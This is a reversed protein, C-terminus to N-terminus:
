NVIVTPSQFVIWYDVMCIFQSASAIVDLNLVDKAYPEEAGAQRKIKVNSITVEPVILVRITYVQTRKAIFLLYV